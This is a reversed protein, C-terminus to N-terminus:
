MSSNQEPAEGEYTGGPTAIDFRSSFGYAVALSPRDCVQMRHWAVLVMQKGGPLIGQAGQNPFSYPAVILKSQGVDEASVKQGYFDRIRDLEDGTTGPRYWVIVAGHELSHIARYIDPPSPYIGPPMPGPPIPAHPGSTPPISAYSSLAPPQPQVAAGIHIRDFSQPDAADKGGYAPVTQVDGCGASTTAAAVQSLLDGPSPLGGPWLAVAAVVGVVGVSALVIGLRRTRRQKAARRQLVAREKRAQEKREAKTPRRGGDGPGGRGRDAM